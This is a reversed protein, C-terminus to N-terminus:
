FVTEVKDSLIKGFIESFHGQWVSLINTKSSLTAELGNEFIDTIVLKSNLHDLVM